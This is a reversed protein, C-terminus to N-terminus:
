LQISFVKARSKRGSVLSVASRGVRYHAAVLALIAENAKGREPREKVSVRLANEGVQVVDNARAGTKVRVSVRM